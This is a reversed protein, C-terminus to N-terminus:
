LGALIKNDCLRTGTSTSKPKASFYSMPETFAKWLLRVYPVVSTREAVRIVTHQRVLQIQDDLVQRRFACTTKQMICPLRIEPRKSDCEELNKDAPCWELVCTTFLKGGFLIKLIVPDSSYANSYCKEIM